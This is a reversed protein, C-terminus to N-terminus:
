GGRRRKASGRAIRAVFWCMVGTLCVSFGVVIATLPFGLGLMTGSVYAWVGSLLPTLVVTIRILWRLARSRDAQTVSAEVRGATAKYDAQESLRRYYALGLFCAMGLLYIGAQIVEFWSAATWPWMGIARRVCLLAFVIAVTLYLWPRTFLSRSGIWDPGTTM